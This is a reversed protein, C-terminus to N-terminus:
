LKEKLIEAIERSANNNWEFKTRDLSRYNAYYSNYKSEWDIGKGFFLDLYYSIDKPAYAMVNTNDYCTIPRETEKRITIIPTSWYRAEEQLGGSDSICLLCDKLAGQMELYSFPKVLKICGWRNNAVGKLIEATRPHVPFVAELDKDEICEEIADLISLLRKKNDVNDPRHLTILFGDIVNIPVKHIYYRLTDIMTNGVWFTDVGNLCIGEDLLNKIGIPDTVFKIDSLRDTIIRNIEEPMRMDFSRLGSEVHILKISSDLRKVAQSCASTSDVDGVVIVGDPKEKRCYHQFQSMIDGFRGGWSHSMADDLNAWDDVKIKFLRLFDQSMEKNKHQETHYVKINFYRKLEPILRAVKIFNPRAGIVLIIKKM